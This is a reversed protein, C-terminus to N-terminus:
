KSTFKPVAKEAPKKGEKYIVILITAFFPMLPIRYRVLSGFNATSLGVGFAFLLTFVFAFTLMPDQFISAFFGLIRKKLLLFITFFLLILNELGAVIMVPNRAEWIFPRFLGAIIAMDAKQIGSEMTPDFDGIDFSNGSYYEQKLDHQTIQAKKFVQDTSYEGFTDGMLTLGQYGIFSGLVGVAPIFIIRITKSKLKGFISSLFYTMTGPIMAIIIYQKVKFIILVSLGIAILNFLINKRKLIGFYFGYVFWGLASYTISDKLIGSGWFVVSPIFLIVVALEKYYKPYNDVMVLYLRWNGIYTIVCLLVTTVLYSNFSVLTIFCVLKVVYFAHAEKLYYPYGTTFSFLKYMEWLNPEMNLVEYFRSPSYLLLSAMNISDRFYGLTDGGKYYFLYLLCLSIGGAFKILLGKQYYAYAPSRKLGNKQVARSILYIIVLILPLTLLDYWPIFVYGEYRIM